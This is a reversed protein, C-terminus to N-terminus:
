STSFYEIQYPETYGTPTNLTGELTISEFDNSIFNVESTPQLTAEWATLLVNKSDTYNKGDLVLKAKIRTNTAGTVKEGSIALATYSVKVTAGSAISGTSIAKLLGSSTVEYDTDSVYTTDGSAPATTGTGTWVVVTGTTINKHDMQVYRDAITVVEEGQISGGADTLVANDGLLALALNDMDLEDIVVSIKQSNPISVSDLVQGYTEKQMSKREKIEGSPTISLKTANGVKLLGTSNGSADQRDIYLTGAGLFGAM